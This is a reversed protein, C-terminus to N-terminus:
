FQTLYFIDSGSCLTWERFSIIFLLTFSAKINYYM